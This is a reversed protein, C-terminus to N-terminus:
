SSLCSTFHSRSLNAFKIPLLLFLSSCTSMEWSMFLLTWGEWSLRSGMPSSAQYPHL